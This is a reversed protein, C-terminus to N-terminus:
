KASCKLLARTTKQGKVNKKLTLMHSELHFASQAFMYIRSVMIKATVKRAM